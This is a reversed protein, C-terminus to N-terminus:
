RAILVSGLKQCGLVLRGNEDRVICVRKVPTNALTWVISDSDAAFASVAVVVALPVWLLEKM